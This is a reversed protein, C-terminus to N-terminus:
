PFGLPRRNCGSSPVLAWPVAPTVRGGKMRGIVKKEEGKPGYRRCGNIGQFKSGWVNKKRILINVRSQTSMEVKSRHWAASTRRRTRQISVVREDVHEGKRTNDRSRERGDDTNDRKLFPTGM